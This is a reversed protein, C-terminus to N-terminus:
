TDKVEGCCRVEAGRIRAYSCCCRIDWQYMDPRSQGKARMAEAVEPSTLLVTRMLGRLTIADDPHFHLAAGGCVERLGPATSAIM